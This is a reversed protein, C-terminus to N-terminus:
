LLKDHQITFCGLYIKLNYYYNTNNHVYRVNYVISVKVKNQVTKYRNRHRKNLLTYIHRYDFILSKTVSFNYNVRAHM